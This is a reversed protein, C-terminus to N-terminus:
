FREINEDDKSQMKQNSYETRQKEGPLPFGRKNKVELNTKQMKNTYSKKVDSDGNSTKQNYFRRNTLPSKSTTITATATATYTPKYPRAGMSNVRKNSLSTSSMKNADIKAVSPQLSPQLKKRTQNKPSNKPSCKPSNQTQFSTTMEQIRRRVLGPSSDM